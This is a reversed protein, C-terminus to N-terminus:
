KSMFLVVRDAMNEAENSIEGMLNIIKYWFMVSVPDLQDEISFLQRNIKQLMNDINHEEQRVMSIMKKVLDQERSMGFGMALLEDLEEIMELAQSSVEMTGELLGDLAEKLEEPVVMDRYLLIQSIKEANDALADQHNILSLLDRRSVPMLLTTPMHRRFNSKIKDAETETASIQHAFQTVEAADKRYLADFLPPIICVCAFVKRMHQQIPEFPSKRLLSALPNTTRMVM